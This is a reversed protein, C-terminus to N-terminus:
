MAVEVKSHYGPTWIWWEVSRAFQRSTVRGSVRALCSSMRPLGSEQPM